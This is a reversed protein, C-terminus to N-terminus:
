VLPASRPLRIVETGAIKDHWGQKDKDWAIWLFGLFLVVVSFAAALGRVLAVMVPLPRGDARVVKLKLVIGGITTGRWTWMGVFYALAVILCVSSLHAFATVISILILDLTAALLRQWLTAKLFSSVDIAVAPTSPSASASASPQSSSAIPPVAEFAASSPTTAGAEPSAPNDHIIPPVIPSEVPAVPSPVPSVSPSPPVGNEPTERRAHSFVATIGCGLGWIGFIIYALLGLVPVLYLLTIIAAGLALAALPKQFGSGFRRGVKGGLWELIAVKGVIAFLFLVVAIIPAAILGIGTVALILYIIPALLKVLLGVLFITAPRRDLDSVCALVPRPFVAAIFLYILFFVIAIVWVFGVQPALPRLELACYKFWGRLWDVNSFPAPFGVNVKNGRVIAGDALDLKGGVAVANGGVKVGSAASVAGMIAAADQHIVAGPKIHVNGFVAVASQGVEGDVELDGGIVVVTERVHGHIAASGGIVVVTEATDGASLEANQGFLLIPQPNDRSENRQNSLGGNDAASENTAEPAPANSGQDAPAATEPNTPSNDNEQAMVPPSLLLGCILLCIAPLIQKTIKM